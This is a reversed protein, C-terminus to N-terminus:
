DGKDPSSKLSFIDYITFDIDPIGIKFSRINRRKMLHENIWHFKGPNEMDKMIKM